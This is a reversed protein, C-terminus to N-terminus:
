EIRVGETLITNYLESSPNIESKEYVDVNKHTIRHLDDAICFIDTPDFKEGGIVMVDVDSYQDAENRAYSGFLIAREAHYKKILPAIFQTLENLTYIKENAKIRRRAPEQCFIYIDWIKRCWKWGIERAACGCISGTM